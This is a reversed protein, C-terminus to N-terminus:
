FFVFQLSEVFQVFLVYLIFLPASQRIGLALSECVDSIGGFSHDVLGYAASCLIVGFAVVPVLAHSFPSHWLSGTASLLTAHPVATLLLLVGIYIILLFVAVGLAQGHRVIPLACFLRSRYLCGGAMALLVLWVLWPTALMDTFHAFFWRAGEGSLLSHVGETMTASLLWSLFVLVIQALVLFVALRAVLRSSKM